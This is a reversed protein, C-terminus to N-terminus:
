IGAAFLAASIGAFLLLTAGMWPGVLRSTPRTNAKLPRVLVLLGVGQIFGVVALSPDRLFFALPIFHLAVVVAVWWAMWRGRGSRALVLGGVAALLVEGAGLWGRLGRPPDEQGWGFWVFSMLGFWAITFAHDRVFETLVGAGKMVSM